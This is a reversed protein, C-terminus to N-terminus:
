RREAAHYCNGRQQECGEDHRHEGAGGGRRHAHRQAIVEVPVPIRVQGRRATRRRAAGGIGDPDEVARPVTEVPAPLAGM